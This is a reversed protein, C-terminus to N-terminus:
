IIGMSKAKLILARNSQDLVGLKEKLRKKRYEIARKSLLLSARMEKNTSGQNLESLMKLDTKDMGLEKLPNKNLYATTSQCYYNGGTVVAAIARDIEWAKISSKVLCGKPNLEAFIRHLHWWSYNATAVILPTESYQKLLLNGVDIGNFLNYQSSAPIRLDLIVLDSPTVSKSIYFYAKECNNAEYVSLVKQAQQVYSELKSVYVNRVLPEDEVLLVRFPKYM